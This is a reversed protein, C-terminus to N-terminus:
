RFKKSFGFKKFWKLAKEFKAHEKWKPAVEKVKQFNKRTWSESNIELQKQEMGVPTKTLKWIVKKMKISGYSWKTSKEIYKLLENLNFEKLGESIRETLGNNEKENWSM